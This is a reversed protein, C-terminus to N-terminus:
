RTEPPKASQIPSDVVPRPASTAAVISSNTLPSGPWSFVKAPKLRSTSAALTCEIRTATALAISRPAVGCCASSASGPGTPQIGLRNENGADGWGGASPGGARLVGAVVLSKKM